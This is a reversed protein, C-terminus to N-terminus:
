VHARGIKDALGEKVAKATITTDEDIVIPTTYEAFEADAATKYLISAGETACSLTVETGKAVEGAAPAAEPAAVSTVKGERVLKYFTFGFNGESVNSTDYLSFETYNAYWELYIHGGESAYNSNMAPNYIYYSGNEANCTELTWAANTADTLSINNYTKTDNVSQVGALVAEGQTFTFDTGSAGVTWEVNEADGYLFGDGATLGNEGELYYSSKVTSTVARANNANYIVVVDGPSVADVKEYVTYKADVDKWPKETSETKVTYAFTAEASDNMGDKTAKVTFTTDENVAIPATYAAYEGTTKYYVTAGETACAFSVQTGKEVEGAAPSATPTAVTEMPEPDTGAGEEVKYLTFASPYGAPNGSVTSTKYARFKGSSGNNSALVVTDEGQGSFTFRGGEFTVGWGYSGSKIGNTNGGSPAISTSAADTLTVTEDSNVTITWVPSSADPTTVSVATVWTGDLVGPAYGTSTVMVYQGTVLEEASTIQTYTAASDAYASVPLMSVVMVLLLLVSLMRSLGRKNM